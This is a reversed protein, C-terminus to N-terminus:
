EVAGAFDLATLRWQLGDFAIGLNYVNGDPFGDNEGVLVGGTTVLRSPEARRADVFVAAGTTPLATDLDHDPLIPTLNSIEGFFGEGSLLIQEDEAREEADVVIASLIEGAFFQSALEDTVLTPNANMWAWVRDLDEITEAVDRYTTASLDIEPMPAGIYEAGPYDEFGPPRTPATTTTVSTTTTTM